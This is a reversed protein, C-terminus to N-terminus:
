FHIIVAHFQEFPEAYLQHPVALRTFQRQLVVEGCRRLFGTRATSYSMNLRSFPTGGNNVLAV